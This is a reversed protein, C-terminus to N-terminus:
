SATGERGAPPSVAEPDGAAPVPPVRLREFFPDTACSSGAGEAIAFRRATALMIRLDLRMSWHDVYWVDLLFRENMPVNTRGHVQAWGTLGPHMDHRRAEEPTYHPLYEVLLPRPGVLSMDGRLINWLQPIEDLSTRRLLRGIRTTRRRDSELRAVGPSDADTTGGPPLLPLNTMTRFKVVEFPKGLYGPRVQRFLVPWGLSVRIALAVVVIVPSLLVLGLASVLIDIGRKAARSPHLRNMMGPGRGVSSAV